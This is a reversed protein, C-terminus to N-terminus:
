SCAAGTMRAYEKSDRMELSALRAAELYPMGRDMLRQTIKGCALAYEYAEDEGNSGLPSFPTRPTIEPTSSKEPPLPQSDTQNAPPERHPSNKENEM